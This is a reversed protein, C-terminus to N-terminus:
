GTIPRFWPERCSAAAAHWSAVALRAEEGDLL